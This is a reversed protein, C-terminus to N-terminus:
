RASRPSSTAAGTTTRLFDDKNLSYCHWLREWAASGASTSNSKFPIYPVGGLKEVLALNDHSLYAKDASVERVDFGNAKTKEVLPAFM